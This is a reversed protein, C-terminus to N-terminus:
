IIKASVTIVIEVKKTEKEKASTLADFDNDAETTLPMGNKLSAKKEYMFGGIIAIEGERIKVTEDFERASIDKLYITNKVPNETTGSGSDYTYPILGNLTSSINKIALKIYDGELKPHVILSYGTTVTKIEPNVTSTTTTPSTSGTVSNSSSNLSAVYDKSDLIDLKVPLNNVTGLTPKTVVSTKGFKNLSKFIFGQTEKPSVSTSTSVAGDAGTTSSSVSLRGDRNTFEGSLFPTLTLGDTLTSSINFVSSLKDGLLENKLFSYDIGFANQNELTVEYVHLEIKIAHDYIDHFDKVLKDAISISEYDGTISVTGNSSNVSYTAKDKLMEDLQSKFSDLPNITKEPTSGSTGSNNVTTNSQGNNTSSSSNSTSNISGSITVATNSGDTGLAPSLEVKPLKLNFTVTQQDKLRINKGEPIVFLKEKASILTLFDVLKGQFEPVSKDEFPKDQKKYIDTIININQERLSNFFEGYTFDGNVKIKVDPIKSEESKKTKLSEKETKSIIEEIALLKDSYKRFFINKDTTLKIYQRLEEPSINTINKDFSIDSTTRDMVIINPNNIQITKIIDKLSDGAKVNISSIDYNEDMKKLTEKVDIASPSPNITSCGTLLITAVSTALAFPIYKKM